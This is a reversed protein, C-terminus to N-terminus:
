DKLTIRYAFLFIVLFGTAALAIWEVINNNKFINVAVLGAAVLITVLLEFRKLLLIM